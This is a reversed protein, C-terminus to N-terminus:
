MPISLRSFGSVGVLPFAIYIHTVYEGTRDGGYSFNEPYVYDRKATSFVHAAKRDFDEFDNVHIYGLALQEKLAEKKSFVKVKEFGRRNIVRVWTKRFHETIESGFLEWVEHALIVNDKNIEADYYKELTRLLHIVEAQHSPWDVNKSLWRIVKRKDKDKKWRPILESHILTIKGRSVRYYRKLFKTLDGDFIDEVVQEKEADLYEQTKPVELEKKIVVDKRPKKDPNM